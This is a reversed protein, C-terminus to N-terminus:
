AGSHIGAQPGARYVLFRRLREHAQPAGKSAHFDDKAPSKMTFFHHVSGTLKALKQVPV